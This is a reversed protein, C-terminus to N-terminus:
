KTEWNMGGGAGITGEAGGINLPKSFTATLSKERRAKAADALTKNVKPANRKIRVEKAANVRKNVANSEEVGKAVRNAMIAKNSAANRPSDIKSVSVTRGSSLKKIFKPGGRNAKIQQIAEVREGRRIEPNDTKTVSAPQPVNGRGEAINSKPKAAFTNKPNEAANTLKTASQEAESPIRKSIKYLKVEVKHAPLAPRAPGSLKTSTVAGPRKEGIPKIPTLLKTFKARRETAKNAAIEASDMPRNPRPRTVTDKMLSQKAENPTLSKTSPKPIVRARPAIPMRGAEKAIAAADADSVKVRQVLKAVLSGVKGVAEAGSKLGGVDVTGVLKTMKGSKYAKAFDAKAADSKSLTAGVDSHGGMHQGGLANSDTAM